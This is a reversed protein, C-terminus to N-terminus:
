LSRALVLARVECAGAARLAQACAGLTAGTTLVDDILLVRAPPPEPYQWAFANHVNEHRAQVDLGIQQPTDRTRVLADTLLPLGSLNALHAALVVSQNFGRAAQRKPHLPVPVLVDAPLPHTHLYDALLAALPQAMRRVRQYKLRHIAARIVGTFLYVIAAEELPRTHGAIGRLLLPASEPYPQLRAHCASCLLSGPQQCGVCRDPFLLGLVQDAVATAFSQLKNSPIPRM